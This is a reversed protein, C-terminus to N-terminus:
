AVFVGMLDLAEVVDLDHEIAIDVLFYDQILRRKNASDKRRENLARMIIGCM